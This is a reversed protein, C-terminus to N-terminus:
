HFPWYNQYVIWKSEVKNYKVMEVVVDVVVAVDDDDDDEAVVVVVVIAAVEVGDLL